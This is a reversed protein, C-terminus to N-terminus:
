RLFPHTSSLSVSVEGRLSSLWDDLVWWIFVFWSLSSWASPPFCPSSTTSPSFLFRPFRHQQSLIPDLDSHCGLSLAISRSTGREGVQNIHLCIKLKDDGIDLKSLASLGDGAWFLGLSPTRSNRFLIHALFIHIWFELFESVLPSDCYIATQM